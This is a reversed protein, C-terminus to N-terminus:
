KEINALFDSLSPSRFEFGAELLRAPRVCQGKLLFGSAEGFVSRFVFSPIRLIFLSGYHKGIQVAAERQTLQQPAVLNFTGCLDSDILFLIARCLDEIDIWTFPQVGSGIVAAAGMRAPRAMPEFAGGHGALVVGFRTVITRIREPTKHADDEWARCLGALFDDGSVQSSEDYCGSSPYYGVASASVFTRVHESRRMADVLQRVIEVRSDYLQRKYAESWRHNITAGAVDIVTACPAITAALRGGAGEAFLERPLSVIEYGADKLYRCLHTGIFGTAGCVAVKRNAEM